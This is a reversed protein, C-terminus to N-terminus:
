ALADEYMAMLESGMAELTYKGRGLDNAAQGRAVLDDESSRVLGILSQTLADVDPTIEWGGGAVALEPFNCETTYICPLSASIAELLAVSFGEFHSPLVFANACALLSEKDEGYVPGPMLVKNALGLERVQSRVDEGHGRYDPGAIVLLWDGDGTEALCQAWATPLMDLGKVMSLRGMFLLVRRDRLEPWRRQAKSADRSRTYASTPLGNPIVRIPSTVGFTRCAEAERENLVQVFACDNLISRLWLERYLVKHFPRWKGVNLITGHPTVVLPKKARRTARSAAWVPHDWIMHAHVVDMARVRDALAQGLGACRFWRKPFAFPFLSCEPFLMRVEQEDGPDVGGFIKVAASGGLSNAHSRIV